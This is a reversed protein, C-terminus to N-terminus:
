KSDVHRIQLPVCDGRLVYLCELRGAKYAFVFRALDDGQCRAIFADVDFFGSAFLMELDEQTPKTLVVHVEVNQGQWLTAFEFDLVREQSQEGSTFHDILVKKLAAYADQGLKELFGKAILGGAAVIITLVSVFKVGKKVQATSGSEPSLSKLSALLERGEPTEFSRDYGVTFTITEEHEDNRIRRGDGRVSSPTDSKEFIEVTGKVAFEGDELPIVKASVVRGIPAKRIDHERTFPLYYSNITAAFAELGEVAMRENDLDVHTTLM